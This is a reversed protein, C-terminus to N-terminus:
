DLLVWAASGFIRDTKEKHFLRRVNSMGRRKTM